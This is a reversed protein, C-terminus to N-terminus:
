FNVETLINKQVPLNYIILKGTDNGLGRYYMFKKQIGTKGFVFPISITIVQQKALKFFRMEINKISEIFRGTIFEVLEIIM